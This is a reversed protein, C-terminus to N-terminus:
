REEGQGLDAWAKDRMDKLLQCVMPLPSDEGLDAFCGLGWSMLIQQHAHKIGEAYGIFYDEDSM